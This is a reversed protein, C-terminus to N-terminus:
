ERLLEPDIELFLHENQIIISKLYEIETQNELLDPKEHKDTKLTTFVEDIEDVLIGYVYDGLDLIIIRSDITFNRWPLRFWKMLNIVRIIKGRLNIAGEVFNPVNPIKSIAPIYIIGQVQLVNVCYQYNNIKFGLFENTEAESIFRFM